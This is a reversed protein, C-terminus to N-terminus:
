QEGEEDFEDDSEYSYRLLIRGSFSPPLLQRMADAIKVTAIYVGEGSLLNVIFSVDPYNIILIYIQASPIMFFVVPADILLNASSHQTYDRWSYDSIAKRRMWYTLNDEFDLHKEYRERLIATDLFHQPPSFILNIEDLANLMFELAQPHFNHVVKFDPSESNLWDNYEDISLMDGSLAVSRRHQSWLGFRALCNRLMGGGYDMVQETVRCVRSGVSVASGLLRRLCHVPRQCLHTLSVPRGAVVHINQHVDRFPPAPRLPRRTLPQIQEDDSDDSFEPYPTPTPGAPPSQALSPHISALLLLMLFTRLFM